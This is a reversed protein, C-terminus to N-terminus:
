ADNLEPYSNIIKDMVTKSFISRRGELTEELWEKASDPDEMYRNDFELCIERVEHASKNIYHPM